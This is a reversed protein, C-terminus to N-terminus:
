DEEHSPDGNPLTQFTRMAVQEGYDNYEYLLPQANDGWVARQEGRPTYAVHREKGAADVTTALRGASPHDAPYHAYRVARGEPDIEAAVYGTKPDYVTKSE